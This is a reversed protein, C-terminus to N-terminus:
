IVLELPEGAELAEAVRKAIDGEYIRIWKRVANDSVDYKHGVAVMTMESKDRMLQWYSPWELRRSEPRPGRRRNDHRQGCEASCYKHNRSRPTFARGCRRCERSAELVQNKRGCHTPLTANCNPCLIRLNGLRNDDPVGNAHDLVLAMREGRWIEGQGCLECVRQKLGAKYLRRKLNHRNYTSGEVLIEYLPKEPTHFPALALSRARGPDFHTTPIKWVVDVYRRFERHNAGAPRLGLKRLAESYNLSSAIAERTAHESYRPM